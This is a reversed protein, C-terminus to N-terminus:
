CSTAPLRRKAAAPPSSTSPRPLGMAVPVEMGGDKVTEARPIGVQYVGGAAKGKAGLIQDLMATDLQVQVGGPLFHHQNM